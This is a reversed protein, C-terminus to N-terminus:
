TKCAGKLLGFETSCFCPCLYILLWSLFIKLYMDTKISEIVFVFDFIIEMVHGKCVTKKFFIYFVLGCGLTVKSLFGVVMFDKFIAKPYGVYRTDM